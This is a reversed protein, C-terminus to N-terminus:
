QSGNIDEGAFEKDNGKIWIQGNSEGYLINM